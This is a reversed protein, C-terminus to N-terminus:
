KNLFEKPIPYDVPLSLGRIKANQYLNLQGLKARRLDIEDVKYIKVYVQGIDAM